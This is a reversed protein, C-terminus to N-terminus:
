RTLKRYKIRHVKGMSLSTGTHKGAEFKALSARM